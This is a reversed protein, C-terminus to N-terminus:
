LLGERVQECVVSWWSEPDAFAAPDLERLNEEFRKGYEIEKEFTCGECIRCMDHWLALFGAFSEISSNVYRAAAVEILVEYVCGDPEEAICIDGGHDEHGVRWLVPQNGSFDNLMAEPLMVSVIADDRELDFACLLITERPLGVETLFSKSAKPIALRDVCAERARQLASDAFVRRVVESPDWSM